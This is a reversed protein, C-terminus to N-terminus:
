PWLTYVSYLFLLVADAVCHPSPSLCIYTVYKCVLVSVYLDTVCQCSHLLVAQCKNVNFTCLIFPHFGRTFNVSFQTQSSKVLLVFIVHTQYV